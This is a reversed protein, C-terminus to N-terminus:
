AVFSVPRRGGQVPASALLTVIEEVNERTVPLGRQVLIAAAVLANEDAEVAIAALAKRLRQDASGRREHRTLRLVVKPELAVVRASFRTGKPWLGGCDAVVNHGKINVITKHEDVPEVVLGRVDDGPHLRGLFEAYGDEALTWGKRLQKEWLDWADM